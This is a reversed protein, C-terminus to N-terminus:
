VTICTKHALQQKMKWVNRKLILTSGCKIHNYPRIM